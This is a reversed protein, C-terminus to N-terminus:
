NFQRFLPFPAPGRRRGFRTQDPKSPGGKRRLFPRALERGASHRPAPQAWLGELIMEPGAAAASGADGQSDQRRDTSTNGDLGGGPIKQFAEPQREAWNPPWTRPAKFIIRRGARVLQIVPQLNFTRHCGKSFVRGVATRILERPAITNQAGQTRRRIEIRVEKGNQRHIPRFPATSTRRVVPSSPNKGVTPSARAAEPAAPRLGELTPHHFVSAQGGSAAPGVSSYSARKERGRPRYFAIEGEGRVFGPPSVTSKSKKKKQGSIRPRGGAERATITMGKRSASLQPPIQTRFRRGGFATGQAPYHNQAARRHLGRSQRHLGSCTSDPPRLPYGKIRIDARGAMINFSPWGKFNKGAIDPSNKQHCLNRQPSFVFIQGRPLLGTTSHHAGRESIHRARGRARAQFLISARRMFSFDGITVDLTAPKKSM